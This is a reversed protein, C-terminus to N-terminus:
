NHFLNVNKCDIPKMPLNIDQLVILKNQFDLQIGLEWLLDRGLNVDYNSKRATM